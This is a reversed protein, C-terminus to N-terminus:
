RGFIAIFKGTVFGTTVTALITIDTGIIFAAPFSAVDCTSGIAGGETLAINAIDAASIKGPLFTLAFYTVITAGSFALIVNTATYSILEPKVLTAWSSPWFL